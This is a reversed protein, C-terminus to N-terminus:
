IKRAFLVSKFYRATNESLANRSLPLGCKAFILILICASARYFFPGSYLVRARSHFGSFIIGCIICHCNLPVYFFLQCYMLQNKYLLNNFMHLTKQIRPYRNIQLGDNRQFLVFHKLFVKFLRFINRKQNGLSDVCNLLEFALFFICFTHCIKANM